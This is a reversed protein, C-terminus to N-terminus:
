SYDPHEARRLRAAAYRAFRLMQARRTAPNMKAKPATWEGYSKGERVAADWSAANSYGGVMFFVPMVQFLWSLWQTWPQIALMHDFHLRGGDMWPAAILWHGFVVAGISLARLLDVYRNRAEPTADAFELARSWAGKRRRREGM